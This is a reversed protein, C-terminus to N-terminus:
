DMRGGARTLTARVAAPAGSVRRGAVDPVRHADGSGSGIGDSAHISEFAPRTGHGASPPRAMRPRHAPASVAPSAIADARTTAPTRAGADAVSGTGSPAPYTTSEASASLLASSDVTSSRM